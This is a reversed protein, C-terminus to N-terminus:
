RAGTLASFAARIEVWVGPYEVTGAGSAGNLWGPYDDGDVGVITLALNTTHGNDVAWVGGSTNALEYRVGFENTNFVASAPTANYLPLKFQTGPQAFIVVVSPKLNGYDDLANENAQGVILAGSGVNSGAAVALELQGSGNFILFDGKVFTQGTAVPFRDTHRLGRTEYTRVLGAM